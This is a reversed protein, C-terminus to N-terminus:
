SQIYKKWCKQHRSLVHKSAREHCGICFLEQRNPAIKGLNANVIKKKAEVSHTRGYMPNNSGSMAASQKPRKQGILKKNQEGRTMSARKRRDETWKSKLRTRTEDSHVFGKRYGQAGGVARNWGTNKVPRLEEEKEFCADRSGEFIIELWIDKKPIRPNKKLHERLRRTPDQSVGVYGQTQIDICEKNRIWYVKDM